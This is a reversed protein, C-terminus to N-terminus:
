EIEVGLRKCIQLLGARRRPSTIEDLYQRAQVRSKLNCSTITCTILAQQDDPRLKLAAKCATDAEEFKAVRVNNKAEELLSSFSPEKVEQKKQKPEPSTQRRRKPRNIASEESEKSEESEGQLMEAPDEQGELERASGNDPEATDSPPLEPATAAALTAHAPCTHNADPCHVVVQDSRLLYVGIAFFAATIAALLAIVLVTRTHIMHPQAIREMRNSGM